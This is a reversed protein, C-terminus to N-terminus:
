STHCLLASHFPWDGKLSFNEHEIKLFVRCFNKKRINTRAGLCTTLDLFYLSKKVAIKCRPRLLSKKKM